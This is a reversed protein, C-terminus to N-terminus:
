WCRITTGYNSCSFPAVRAPSNNLTNILQQNNLQTVFRNLAESRVQAEYRDIERFREDVAKDYSAFLDKIKLAYDGYSIKSNYLDVFLSFRAVLAYNFLEYIEPWYKKYHNRGREDFAARISQFRELAKRENEKVFSKNVYYSFPTERILGFYINERIPDLIKENKLENLYKDLSIKAEEKRAADKAADFNNVCGVLMLSALIIILYRM